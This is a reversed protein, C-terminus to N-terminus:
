GFHWIRKNLKKDHQISNKHDYGENAINKRVKSPM